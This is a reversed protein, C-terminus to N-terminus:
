KSGAAQGTAEKLYGAAPAGEGDLKKTVWLVSYTILKRYEEQEMTSNHHGLTIGVVRNEDELSHSFICSDTKKPGKLTTGEALNLTGEHLTTTYLEGQETKWGDVGLAKTVPHTKDMIKIELPCHQVHRISNCGCIRDWAEEPSTKFSHFSGHTLIVGVENEVHNNIVREILEDDQFGVHCHNHLVVDYGKSFNETFVHPIKKDVQNVPHEETSTWRVDVVANLRSEITEKLIVAQREYDHWGGGTIMLVKIPEPAGDASAEAAEARITRTNFFVVVGIATFLTAFTLLKAQIM